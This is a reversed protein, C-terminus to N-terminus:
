IFPHELLKRVNYREKPEKRLCNRLFDDLEPSINNPIPPEIAKCIQVM